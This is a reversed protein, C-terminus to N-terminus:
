EKEEFLFSLYSEPRWHVSKAASKDRRRSESETTALMIASWPFESLVPSIIAEMRPDGALVTIEVNHLSLASSAHLMSQLFYETVFVGANSVDIGRKSLAEVFAHASQPHKVYAYVYDYRQTSLEWKFKLSKTAYIKKLYENDVFLIHRIKSM